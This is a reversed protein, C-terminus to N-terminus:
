ARGMVRAVSLTVGQLYPAAYWRLRVYGGEAHRYRNVFGEVPGDWASAETEATESLDGPHVLNRWGLALFDERSYGLARSFALNVWLLVGDRAPTSIAVPDGLQDLVDRFRELTHADADLLALPLASEVTALRKALAEAERRALALEERCARHEADARDLQERLASVHGLFDHAARSWPGAVQGRVRLLALVLTGLAVLATILTGLEQGSM